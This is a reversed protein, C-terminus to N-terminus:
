GTLLLQPVKLSNAFNPVPLRPSQVAHSPFLRNVGEGLNPNEFRTGEGRPTFRSALAHEEGCM